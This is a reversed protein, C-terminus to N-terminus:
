AGLMGDPRYAWQETRGDLTLSTRRGLADVAYTTTRSLPDAQAQHQGLLLVCM